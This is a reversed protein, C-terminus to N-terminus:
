AARSDQEVLDATVPVFTAEPLSVVPARRAHRGGATKARAPKTRTAAHKAAPKYRRLPPLIPRALFWAVALLWPLECAWVVLVTEQPGSFQKEAVFRGIETPWALLALFAPALAVMELLHRTRSRGDHQRGTVRHPLMARRLAPLWEDPYTAITRQMVFFAGLVLLLDGALVVPEPLRGVVGPALRIALGTVALALASGQLLEVAMSWLERVAHTLRPLGGADIVEDHQGDPRRAVVRVEVPVVEDTAVVTGPRWTRLGHWGARVSRVAAAWAGVTARPALLVLACVVVVLGIMRTFAVVQTM